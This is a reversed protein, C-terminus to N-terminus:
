NAQNFKTPNLKSIKENLANKHKQTQASIKRAFELFELDDTKVIKDLSSELATKELDRALYLAKIETLINSKVLEINKKIGSVVTKIANHNFNRGVMFKGPNASIIDSMKQLYKAHQLEQGCINEWFNGDEPWAKSCTEYFQGMTLELHILVKLTDEVNLLSNTNM